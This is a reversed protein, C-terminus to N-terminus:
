DSSLSLSGDDCYLSVYNIYVRYQKSSLHDVYCKAIFTRKKRAVCLRKKHAGVVWHKFNPVYVTIHRTALKSPQAFGFAHAFGVTCTKIAGNDHLTAHPWCSRHFGSLRRPPPRKKSLAM